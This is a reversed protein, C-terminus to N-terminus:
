VFDGAFMFRSVMDEGVKVGWRAAEVAVSMGNIVVRLLTSSITFGRAVRQLIGVYAPLEGTLMMVSRVERPPPLSVPRAFLNDFSM